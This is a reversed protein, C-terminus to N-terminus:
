SKIDDPNIEILSEKREETRVPEQRKEPQVGSNPNSQTQQTKQAPQDQQVPQQVPPVYSSNARERKREDHFKKFMEMDMSMKHRLKISEGVLATMHSVATVVLVQTPTMAVEKETLVGALAEEFEERMKDTVVIVDEVGNNYSDIYDSVKIRTTPSSQLEMEPDIEDAHVMKRIKSDPVKAIFKPLIPLMTQYMNAVLNATTDIAKKKQALPMDKLGGGGSKDGDGGAGADDRPEEYDGDGGEGNDEPDGTTYVDEEEEEESPVYSGRTDEREIVPETFQSQAEIDIMPEFDIKNGGNQKMGENNSPTSINVSSKKLKDLLRRLGDESKTVESDNIIDILSVDDNVMKNIQDVLAKETKSPRSAKTFFKKM